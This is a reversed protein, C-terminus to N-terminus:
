KIKCRTLITQKVSKYETFEKIRGSVNYKKNLNEERAFTGKSTKWIVVRGNDDIFTYVYTIGNDWYNYAEREFYTYKLLKLSLNVKEDVEFPLYENAMQANIADRQRKLEMKALYKMYSFPIFALRSALRITTYDEKLIEIVNQTFDNNANKNTEVFWKIIKDVEPNENQCTPLKDLIKDNTSSIGEYNALNRNIYEEGDKAMEYAITLYNKISIYIHPEITTFFDDLNMMRKIEKEEAFFKTVSEGIFEKMCAKGVYKIENTEKNKIMYLNKKARTTNCHDCYFDRNRLNERTEKNTDEETFIEVLTVRDVLSKKAIVQWDNVTTDFTINFTVIKQTANDKVIYEHSIEEINILNKNFKKNVKEAHAMLMEFKAAELMKEM